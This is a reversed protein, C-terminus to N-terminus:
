VAFKGPTERVSIGLCVGNTSRYTGPSFITYSVNL